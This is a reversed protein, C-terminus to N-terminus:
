GKTMRKNVMAPPDECSYWKLMKGEYKVIYLCSDATETSACAPLAIATAMLLTVLRSM